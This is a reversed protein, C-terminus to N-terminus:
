REMQLNTVNPIFTQSVCCHVLYDLEWMQPLIQTELLITATLIAITVTVMISDTARTSIHTLCWASYTCLVICCRMWDEELCMQVSVTILRMKYTLLSSSAFIFLRNLSPFPARCGEKSTTTWCGHSHSREQSSIGRRYVLTFSVKGAWRMPQKENRGGWNIWLLPWSLIWIEPLKGQKAVVTLKISCKVQGSM